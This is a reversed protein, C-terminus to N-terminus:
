NGVLARLQQRDIKGNSNKPLKPMLVLKNPMMYDVRDSCAVFGVLKGYAANARHYIVAAQSVDSLKVLAHEIEELEIRYGMHKIQNDKRGIFYLKGDTERVLDGTRYMRKMYRTSESLTHFADTTRQLDNFYGAAVNPGILCLEGSVADLDEDNLIRYDFNSNLHGLSPLGEMEHFDEDALTYASCICTCETPGYVNVLEAQRSFIDYLRKLEVKPYGEGGFVITRLLPLADATLAKMAMLYILLSPVSFWITCAMKGVYAVLDYPSALIERPVPSLSAGSFMGVFFDFASNDFYMPSLNAFNDQDTISFRNQGWSIFHLVNQHTVAVGKPVGTSGSTFMIYAICAGDVMRSLRLQEQREADTVQPLQDDALVLLQCGQISALEEMTTQYDPADFFLLSAGSVQLMSSTRAMPSAVDINVYAIGLRLAALMLAYSLPRKNHGIAIVDGRRLGKSLLVATLQDVWQAVERYEYEREPYRLAPRQAHTALLEDFLLGLNYHHTPM